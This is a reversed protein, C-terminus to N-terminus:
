SKYATSPVSTVLIEFGDEDYLIDYDLMVRDIDSFYKQKRARLFDVQKKDLLELRVDDIIEYDWVMMSFKVLTELEKVGLNLPSLPGMFDLFINSFKSEDLNRKTFLMCSNFMKEDKLMLDYIHEYLEEHNELSRDYQSQLNIICDLYYEGQFPVLSMRIPMFFTVRKLEKKLSDDLMKVHYVKDTDKCYVFVKNKDFAIIHMTGFIENKWEQIIEKQLSPLNATNLYEELIEPRTNHEEVGLIVQDGERRNYETFVNYIYKKYVYLFYDRRLLTIKRKSTKNKKM